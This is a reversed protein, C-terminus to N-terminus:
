IGGAQRPLKRAGLQGLGAPLQPLSAHDPLGPQRTTDATDPGHRLLLASCAGSRPASAQQGCPDCTGGVTNDPATPCTWSCAPLLNSCILSLAACLDARRQCERRWSAAFRGWLGPWPQLGTPTSRARWCPRNSTRWCSRSAPLLLAVSCLQCSRCVVAQHGGLSIREHRASRATLPSCAHVGALKSQRSLICQLGRVGPAPRAKHLGRGPFAPQRAASGGPRVSHCITQQVENSTSCALCSPAPRHSRRHRASNSTSPFLLSSLLGPLPCHVASLLFRGQMFALPAFHIQQPARAAACSCVPVSRVGDLVLRKEQQEGGHGGLQCSIKM